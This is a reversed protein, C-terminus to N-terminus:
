QYLGSGSLSPMTLSILLGPTKQHQQGVFFFGGNVFSTKAPFSWNTIAFWLPGVMWDVVNGVTESGLLGFMLSSTVAM